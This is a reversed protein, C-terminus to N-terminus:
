DNNIYSVIVKPMAQYDLLNIEGDQNVDATTPDCPKINELLIEKMCQGDIM